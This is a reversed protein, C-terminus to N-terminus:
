RRAPGTLTGHQRVDMRPLLLEYGLHQGRAGPLGAGQPAPLQQLIRAQRRRPRALVADAPQRHGAGPLRRPEPDGVRPRCVGAANIISRMEGRFVDEDVLAARNVHFTGVRVDEVVWGTPKAASLELKHIGTM